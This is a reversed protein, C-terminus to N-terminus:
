KKSSRSPTPTASGSPSSSVSPSASGSASPDSAGPQKQSGSRVYADSDDAAGDVTSVLWRDNEKKMLVEYRSEISAGSDGSWQVTVDVIRQSEKVKEDTTDPIQVSAKQVQEVKQGNNIGTTPFGDTTVAKLTSTDGESWATFFVKLRDDIDTVTTTDTDTTLEKKSREPVPLAPAAVINPHSLPSYGGNDAYIGVTAYLPASQGAVDGRVTVDFKHDDAKKTGVPYANTITQKGKGNWGTNATFSPNYQSLRQGREPIKESDWTYWDQVMAAAFAEAGTQEAAAAGSLDVEPQKCARLMFLLLLVILVWPIIKGRLTAGGRGGATAKDDLLEFRKTERPHTERHFDIVEQAPATETPPTPAAKPKRLRLRPTKKEPSTKQKPPKKSM